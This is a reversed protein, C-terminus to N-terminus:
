CRPDGGLRRIEAEMRQMQQARATDRAECAALKRRVEPMDAVILRLAAVDARLQENDATVSKLLRDYNEGQMQTFSELREEWRAQFQRDSLNVQGASVDAVRAQVQVQEHGTQRTLLHGILAVVGTILAGGVVGGFVQGLELMRM